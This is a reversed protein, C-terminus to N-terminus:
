KQALLSRADQLEPRNGDAHDCIALLKASYSRAKETDGSLNAAHAAGSLANFRNPATRLTAEFAVLAEASQKLELLMDGLLERAPLIVGPTVNHKDTQDEHDAASRMQQLAQERKGEALTIWATAVEHQIDVQDAWYKNNEQTLIERISALQRVDEQAAELDGTHSAGLARAFHLNAETWSYRERPFTNAPVPLAAAEAWRHREVAYRAPSAGMAYLWNMYQPDDARGQPPAELAKKAELDQAGQLYAYILYDKAHLENGPANNKQASAASALNSDISEQWLGLRTFIHSPMHLAHPSDPAIKAYLRAAELAKDALPPYDYAHIIYHAVGPHEPQEVFIKELIAGAKRQNVYTKDSPPATALLALAYFVAAESDDPYRAQLQEMAKEYALARTRHDLKDNDKYFTGIAAIYDQERQTKASATRAQELASVGAKLDAPGPAEWIPHYHTMAIGWYAMGCHPDNQAVTAFTDSAKEYWFSHLMAVATNFQQQVSPDCSIPFNVKGLRGVDGAPHEHEHQALAPAAFTACVAAMIVMSILTLRKLSAEKGALVGVSFRCAKLPSIKRRIKPRPRVSTLYAPIEM